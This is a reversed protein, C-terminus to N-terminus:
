CCTFHMPASMHRHMIEGDLDHDETDPVCARASFQLLPWELECQNETTTIRTELSVDPVADLPINYNM